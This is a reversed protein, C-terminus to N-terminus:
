WTTCEGCRLGAETRWRREVVAGCGECTAGDPAYAMTSSPDGRETAVGETEADPEAADTAADGDDVDAEEASSDTEAAGDDVFQDLSADEM